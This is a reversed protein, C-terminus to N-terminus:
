KWLEGNDCIDRNVVITYTIKNIGAISTENSYEDKIIEYEKVLQRTKQKCEELIEQKNTQFYNNLVKEKQEYYVCREIKLPLILNNSLNSTSIEARYCKYPSNIKEGYIGIEGLKIVRSITKNGTDEYVVKKDPINVITTNYTDARIIALPKISLTNGATDKVYPAVLEQGVCVFDGVKFM